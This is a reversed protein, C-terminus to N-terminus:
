QKKGKKLIGLKTTPVPPDPVVTGHGACNTCKRGRLNGTGNCIPCEEM